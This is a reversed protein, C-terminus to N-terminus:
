LSYCRWVAGRDACRALAAAARLGPALVADPAIECLPLLAFRRELLRPHPVQLAPLELRAGQYWLLDIDITRPAARPGRRRGLALEIRRTAALLDWPALATALLLAANRFRGGAVGGWPASLYVASCRILESGPLARCREVAEALPAAGGVNSGLGLIAHRIM